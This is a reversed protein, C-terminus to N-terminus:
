LLVGEFAGLVLDAEDRFSLELIETLPCVYMRVGCESSRSSGGPLRVSRELLPVEFFSTGDGGDM